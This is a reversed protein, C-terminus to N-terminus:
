QNVQPNYPFLSRKDASLLEQILAANHDAGHVKADHTPKERVVLETWQGPRVNNVHVLVTKDHYSWGLLLLTYRSDSTQRTLRFETVDWCSYHESQLLSIKCLFCIRRNAGWISQNVTPVWARLQDLTVWLVWPVSCYAKSEWPFHCATRGSYNHTTRNYLLQVTAKRDSSSTFRWQLREDIIPLLEQNLAKHMLWKFKWPFMRTNVPCLLADKVRQIHFHEGRSTIHPKERAAVETWQGPPVCPNRTHTSLNQRLMKKRLETTTFKRLFENVSRNWQSRGNLQVFLLCTQIPEFISFLFTSQKFVESELKVGIHTITCQREGHEKLGHTTKTSFILSSILFWLPSLTM